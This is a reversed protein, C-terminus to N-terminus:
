NDDRKFEPGALEKLKAKQADTLVKNIEEDLVKNNGERKAQAEERDLEGARVKEQIAQNAERQKTALDAIKKSQEESVGIEKAVEASMVARTGALQIGIQRVRKVQDPTLVANVEKTTEENMKEMTKRQEDSLQFGRGGGGGGGNGGGGATFVERMKEMSKTRIADLKDKQESTLKLDAQVDDRQLLFTAPMVGGGGGMMMMRGQGGRGQGGRGGGGGGQAFAGITLATVAVIAIAKTFKM